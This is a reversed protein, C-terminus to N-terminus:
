SLATIAANYLYTIDTWETSYMLQLDNIMYVMRTHVSRYEPEQHNTGYKTTICAHTHSPGATSDATYIIFIKM